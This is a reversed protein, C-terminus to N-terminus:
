PKPPPAPEGGAGQFEQDSHVNFFIYNRYSQTIRERVEEEGQANLSFLRTVAEGPFSLGFKEVTFSIQYRYGRPQKKLPVGGLRVGKMWKTTRLPLLEDQRNPAAVIKVFNGTERDVWATGSWEEIERGRVWTAPGTFAVKLTAHFGVIEEGAPEFRFHPRHSETFLLAWDYAGPVPLGPDVIRSEQPANNSDLLFRLEEFGKLPDGEVLYSYRTEEEKKNDGSSASFKGQLVTEDCSFGVAAKEYMAARRLLLDQLPGLTPLPDPSVPAPAAGISVLAAIALAGRVVSGRDAANGM